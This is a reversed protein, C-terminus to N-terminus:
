NDITFSTIVEDYYEWAYGEWLSFEVHANDQANTVVVTMVPVNDSSSLFITARHETATKDVSVSYEDPYAFSYGGNNSAVTEQFTKWTNPLVGFSASLPEQTKEKLQLVFTLTSMVAALTVLVLVAPHFYKKM